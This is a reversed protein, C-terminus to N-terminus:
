GYSHPSHPNMPSSDEKGSQGILQYLRHSLNQVQCTGLVCAVRMLQGHSRGGGGGNNAHRRGRSRGRWAPTDRLVRDTQGLPPDSSGLLPKGRLWAMWTVRGDGQAVHHYTVEPPDSAAPGIVIFSSKPITLTRLLSFRHPLGLNQQSLARAQVELPLLSLLLWVPLLVRM